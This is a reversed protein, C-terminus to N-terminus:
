KRGRLKEFVQVLGATLAFFAVALALYLVDM